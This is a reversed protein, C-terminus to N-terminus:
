QTFTSLTETVSEIDTTREIMTHTTLGPGSVTEIFQFSAGPDVITWTPKDQLDLGVWKSSVGNLNNTTTSLDAPALNGGSPEINTGSVTYEYGTRYEYSNIVETVKQTTQTTSKLTGQQFNPVVPLPKAEPAALAIACLVGWTIWIGTWM